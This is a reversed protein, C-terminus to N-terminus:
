LPRIENHPVREPLQSDAPNATPLGTTLDFVEWHGDVLRVDKTPDITAPRPKMAPYRVRARIPKGAM